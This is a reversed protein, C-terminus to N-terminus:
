AARRDKIGTLILAGTILIALGTLARGAANEFPLEFVLRVDQRGQPTDILMFGAADRHIQLPQSGSYARWAPDYSVQALLAEGARTTARIRMEDTGMWEAEIPSEPGNEVLEVYARLNEIGPELPTDRTAFVRERDVVRALAAYRRPVAFILDGEGSDYVLPLMGEFKRPKAFDKYVEQSQKEHVIVAGTGTAQMWLVGLGPDEAALVQYQAPM